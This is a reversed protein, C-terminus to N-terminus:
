LRITLMVEVQVELWPNTLPSTSTPNLSLLTQGWGWSCHLPDVPPLLWTGYISTIQLYPRPQPVEPAVKLNQRLILHLNLTLSLSFNGRVRLRSRLNCRMRSPQTLSEATLTPIARKWDCSPPIHSFFSQCLFSFSSLCSTLYSLWVQSCFPELPSHFATLIRMVEDDM